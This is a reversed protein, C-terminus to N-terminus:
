VPYEKPGHRQERHDIRDRIQQSTLRGAVFDQLEQSTVRSVPSLLAQMQRPTNLYLVFIQANTGPGAPNATVGSFRTYGGPDRWVNDITAIFVGPM